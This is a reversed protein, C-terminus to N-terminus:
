WFGKLGTLLSVIELYNFVSKAFAPILVFVKVACLVLDAEELEALLLPKGTLIIIFLTPHLEVEVKV